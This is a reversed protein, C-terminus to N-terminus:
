TASWNHKKEQNFNLTVWLDIDQQCFFIYYWDALQKRQSYGEFPIFIRRSM